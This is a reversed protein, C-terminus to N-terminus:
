EPSHVKKTKQFGQIMLLSRHTNINSSEQQRILNTSQNQITIMIKSYHTKGLTHIMRFSEQNSIVLITQNSNFSTKDKKEQFHTKIQITVKASFM